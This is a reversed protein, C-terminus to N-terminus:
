DDDIQNGDDCQEGSEIKGNGCQVPPNDINQCTVPNCNVTGPETPDCEENPNM